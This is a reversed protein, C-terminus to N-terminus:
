ISSHARPESLIGFVLCVLGIVISSLAILRFMFTCPVEEPTPSISSVGTMYVIRYIIAGIELDFALLLIGVM